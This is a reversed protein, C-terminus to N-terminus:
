SKSSTMPTIDLFGESNDESEEKLKEQEPLYENSILEIKGSKINLSYGGMRNNDELAVILMRM